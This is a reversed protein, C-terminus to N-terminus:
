SHCGTIEDWLEGHGYGRAIVEATLTKYRLEEKVWTGTGVTLVEPDAGLDLLKKLIHRCGGQAAFHLLTWRRSDKTNLVEEVPLLDVFADFTEKNKNWVACTIPGWMHKTTYTHMNGGKCELNYIDEGRGYAGARHCPGWGVADVDNWASFDHSM